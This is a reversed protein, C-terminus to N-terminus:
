PGPSFKQIRHNHGDAVYVSGDSAVAVGRPRKFEGDGSGYTGWKSLVVGESTFKWIRHTGQDTAYASGDPDVTMGCPKVGFDVGGLGSYNSAFVGESTFKQISTSLLGLPNVQSTVYVSGDSGIAVDLPFFLEGDGWGETGLKFAFEYTHEASITSPLDSETRRNALGRVFGAADIGRRATESIRNIGGPERREIQNGQEEPM